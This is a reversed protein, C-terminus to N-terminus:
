FIGVIVTIDNPSLVYIDKIHKTGDRKGIDGDVMLHKM